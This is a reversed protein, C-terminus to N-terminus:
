YSMVGSIIGGDKTVYTENKRHFCVYAVGGIILIYLFVMTLVGIHVTVQSYPLGEILQAIFIVFSSLLYTVYGTVHPLVLVFSSVVTIFSMLMILSVFPLVLLNSLIAYVSLTGFTYMIYPLTSLYASITTLIIDKFTGPRIMDFREELMPLLYIIGATALFSLHLSVDNVLSVPSYLTVVVLSLLLAQRAVYERGSVLALLSILAMLTARIVSPTGGVMMVFLTVCIVTLVVRFLLPLFAFLFLISTILIAINFGSLVIIHSLGATRFTALLEPSMTQNGFLMGSALTDSPSKV